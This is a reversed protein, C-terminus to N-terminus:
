KKNRKKERKKKRKGQYRHRKLRVFIFFFTNENITVGMGSQGSSSNLHRPAPLRLEVGPVRHMRFRKRHSPSLSQPLHRNQSFENANLHNLAFFNRFRYTIPTILFTTLTYFRSTARTVFKFTSISCAYWILPFAIHFM